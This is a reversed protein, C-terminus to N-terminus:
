FKIIRELVWYPLHSRIIRRKPKERSWSMFCPDTKSSRWSGLYSLRRQYSRSISGSLDLNM